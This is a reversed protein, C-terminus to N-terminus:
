RNGSSLREFEDRQHERLVHNKIHENYRLGLNRLEPEMASAQAAMHDEKVQEIEEQYKDMLIRFYRARTPSIDFEAIM